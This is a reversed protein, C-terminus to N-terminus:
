GAGRVGPGARAPAVLLVLAGLSSSVPSDGQAYHKEDKGQRKMLVTHRELGTLFWKDTKQFDPDLALWDM